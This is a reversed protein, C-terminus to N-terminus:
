SYVTHLLQQLNPSCLVTGITIRDNLFCVLKEIAFQKKTKTLKTTKLRTYQSLASRNAYVYYYYNPQSTHTM